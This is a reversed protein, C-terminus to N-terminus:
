TGTETGRDCLHFLGDAGRAGRDAGGGELGFGQLLGAPFVRGLGRLVVDLSDGVQVGRMTFGPHDVKGAAQADSVYGNVAGEGAQLALTVDADLRVTRDEKGILAARESFFALVPM